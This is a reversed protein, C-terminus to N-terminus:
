VNRKGNSQIPRLLTLVDPLQLWQLQHQASWARKQQHSGMRALQPAFTSAAPQYNTIFVVWEVLTIYSRIQECMVDM